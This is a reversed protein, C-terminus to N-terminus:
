KCLTTFKGRPDGLIFENLLGPRPNSGPGGANLDGARVVSGHQRRISCITEGPPSVRILDVILVFIFFPSRIKASITRWVARTWRPARTKSNKVRVLHNAVCVVNKDALPLKNGLDLLETSSHRILLLRQSPSLPPPLYIFHVIRLLVAIFNIYINLNAM